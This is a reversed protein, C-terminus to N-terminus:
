ATKVFVLMPVSPVLPCHAHVDVLRGLGHLVGPDLVEEFAAFLGGVAAHPDIPDPHSGPRAL